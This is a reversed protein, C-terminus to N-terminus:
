KKAPLQFSTSRRIPRGPRIKAATIATMMVIM